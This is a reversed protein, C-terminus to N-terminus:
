ESRPSAQPGLNQNKSVLEIHQSAFAQLLHSEAVPVINSGQLVIHAVFVDHVRNSM